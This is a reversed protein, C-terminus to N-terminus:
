TTSFTTPAIGAEPRPDSAAFSAATAANMACRLGRM